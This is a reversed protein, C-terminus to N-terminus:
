PRANQEASANGRSRMTVTQRCSLIRLARRAWPMPRGSVAACTLNICAILHYPRMLNEVEWLRCSQNERKCKMYCQSTNFGGAITPVISVIGCLRCYVAARCAWSTPRNPRCVSNLYRKRASCTFRAVTPRALVEQTHLCSQTAKARTPQLLM